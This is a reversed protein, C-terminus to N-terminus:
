LSPGPLNVEPADMLRAEGHDGFVRAPSEKRATCAQTVGALKRALAFSGSTMNRCIEGLSVLEGRQGIIRPKEKARV